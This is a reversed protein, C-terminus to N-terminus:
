LFPLVNTFVARVVKQLHGLHWVKLKKIEREVLHITWGWIGVPPTWTVNQKLDGAKWLFAEVLQGNDVEVQILVLHHFLRHETKKKM